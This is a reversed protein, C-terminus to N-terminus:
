SPMALMVPSMTVGTAFHLCCSQGGQVYAVSLSRISLYDQRDCLLGVQLEVQDTAPSPVTDDANSQGAQAERARLAASLRRVEAEQLKM